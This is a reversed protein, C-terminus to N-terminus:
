SSKKDLFKRMSETFVKASSKRAIIENVLFVLPERLNMALELCEEEDQSHLGKSLIEHLISLPNIGEPRLTKPLLDKVLKIKDQAVIANKVKGLAEIYHEHEEAPILETIDILLQDIIQEVIRRYYAFAGIGYGQSECTLGKRYYDAHAGLMKELNRDMSIEWPPYQGVKMIFKGNPDTSIFFWRNFQHCSSCLYLARIIQGGSAPYEEPNNEDYKNVMNFTQESKCIECPMHIAPKEMQFLYAPLNVKFKRYLPYTELFIRNPM